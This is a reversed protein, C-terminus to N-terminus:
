MRWQHDLSLGRIPWAGPGGVDTNCWLLIPKRPRVCGSLDGRPAVTGNCIAGASIYYQSSTIQTEGRHQRAWLGGAVEGLPAELQVDPADAQGCPRQKNPHRTASCRCPRKSTSSTFGGRAGFIYPAMRPNWYRTQHGFHVGAELMQRMTVQPMTPIGQRPFQLPGRTSLGCAFIRVRPLARTVVGPQVEVYGGRAVGQPAGRVRHRYTHPNPVIATHPKHIAWPTRM